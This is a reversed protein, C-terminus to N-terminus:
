KLGQINHTIQITEMLHPHIGLLQLIIQDERRVM